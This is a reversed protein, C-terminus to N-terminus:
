RTAHQQLLKLDIHRQHLLTWSMNHAPWALALLIRQWQRHMYAVNTLRWSYQPALYFEAM